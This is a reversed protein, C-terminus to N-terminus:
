FRSWTGKKIDFRVLGRERMRMLLDQLTEQRGGPDVAALIAFLRRPRDLAKLVADESIM